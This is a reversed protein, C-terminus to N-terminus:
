KAFVLSIRGKVLKSGRIVELIFIRSIDRGKQSIDSRCFPLFNHQAEGAFVQKEKM